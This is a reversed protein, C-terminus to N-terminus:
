PVGQPTTTKNKAAGAGGWRPRRLSKSSFGFRKEIRQAEKKETMKLPVFHLRFIWYNAFLNRSKARFSLLFYNRILRGEAAKRQEVIFVKDKKDKNKM